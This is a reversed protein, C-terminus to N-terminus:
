RKTIPRNIPLPLYSESRIIRGLQLKKVVYIIEITLDLKKPNRVNSEILWMATCGTLYCSMVVSFMRSTFCLLRFSKNNALDMPKHFTQLPREQLHQPEFKQVIIQSIVFRLM